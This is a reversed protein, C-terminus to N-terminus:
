HYPSWRSRCEKGVRREESKHAEARTRASVPPGKPIPRHRISAVKKVAKKIPSKTAAPDVKGVRSRYHKKKPKAPAKIPPTTAALSLAACALLVMGLKLTIRM